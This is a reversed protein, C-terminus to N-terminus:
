IQPTESLLQFRGPFHVTSTRPSIGSADIAVNKSVSRCCHQRVQLLMALSSGAKTGRAANAQALDLPHMKTAHRQAHQRSYRCLCISVADNGQSPLWASVGYRHHPSVDACGMGTRGRRRLRCAHLLRSVNLSYMTDRQGRRQGQVDSASRLTEEMKFLHQRPSRARLAALLLENESFSGRNVYSTSATSIAADSTPSSSLPENSTAVQRTTVSKRTITAISVAHSNKSSNTVWPRCFRICIPSIRAQSCSFNSVMASPSM